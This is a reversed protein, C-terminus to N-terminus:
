RHRPNENVGRNGGLIVTGRKPIYPTTKIEDLEQVAKNYCSNKSVFSHYNCAVEEVM